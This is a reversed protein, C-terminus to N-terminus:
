SREGITVAITKAQGGRLIDVAVEQGVIPGILRSLLDDPDSIPIGALGVLIDGILLGDRAAPGDEEVGVLLLGIPQSRNLASQQAAPLTVPQSRIGLYGRRVRGHQSLTQAANWALSVPITLATGNALGSTNVGVIRGSTDILPGGSFGPYPTTDTRLYRELLGGRGTRVPGGYASVVGLSAQIGDLSPRGLALVLQGIRADGPAPQAPILAPQDLRLLALDSGSDRGALTVPVQTGNPLFISLDDECEVVHDATLVLDPTFAIGSAPMRRRADVTVTVSGAIEVANAMSESLAHLPNLDINSIEPM